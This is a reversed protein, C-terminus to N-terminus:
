SIVASRSASGKRLFEAINKYGIPTRTTKYRIDSSADNLTHLAISSIYKRCYYINACGVKAQRRRTAPRMYALFWINPALTIDLPILISSELSDDSITSDCRNERTPRVRRIGEAGASNRLWLESLLYEGRCYTSLRGRPLQM